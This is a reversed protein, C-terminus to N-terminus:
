LRCLCGKVGTTMDSLMILTFYDFGAFAIDGLVRGTEHILAASFSNSVNGSSTRNAQKAASVIAASPPLASIAFGMSPMPDPTNSHIVLFEFERSTTTVDEPVQSILVGIGFLELGDQSGFDDLGEIALM